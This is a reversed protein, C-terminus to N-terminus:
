RQSLETLFCLPVVWPSFCPAKLQLSSVEEVLHLFHLPSTHNKKATYVVDSTVKVRKCPSSGCRAVELPINNCLIICWYM